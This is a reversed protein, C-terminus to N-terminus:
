RPCSSATPPLPASSPAFPWAKPLPLAGTM